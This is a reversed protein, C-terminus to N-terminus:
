LFLPPDMVRQHPGIVPGRCRSDLSKRVVLHLTKHRFGQPHEGYTSLLGGEGHAAPASWAEGRAELTGM